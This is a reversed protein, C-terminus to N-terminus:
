YFENKNKRKHILKVHLVLIMFLLLPVMKEGGNEQEKEKNKELSVFAVLPLVPFPM